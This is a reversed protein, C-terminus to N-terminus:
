MRVRLLHNVTVTMVTAEVHLVADVMKTDGCSSEEGPYDYNAGTSALEEKIYKEVAEDAQGSVGSFM